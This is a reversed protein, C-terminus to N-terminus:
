VAMYFRSSDHHKMTIRPSEHHKMTIRPSEHHNTIIRPSELHNTTIRSSEHSEHHSMIIRPSEHYEKQILCKTQMVYMCSSTRTENQPFHQHSDITTIPPSQRFKFKVVFQIKEYYLITNRTPLL